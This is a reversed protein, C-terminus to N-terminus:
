NKKVARLNSLKESKQQKQKYNQNRYIEIIPYKSSKMNVKEIKKIIKKKKRYKFNMDLQQSLHNTMYKMVEVDKTVTTSRLNQYNAIKM